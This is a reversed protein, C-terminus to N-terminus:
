FFNSESWVCLLIFMKQTPLCFITTRYRNYKKPYNKEKQCFLKQSIYTCFLNMFCIEPQLCTCIRNGIRTRTYWQSSWIETCMHKTRIYIRINKASKQELCFCLICQININRYTLHSIIISPYYQTLLFPGLGLMRIPRWLKFSFHFGFVTKFRNSQKFGLWSPLVLGIGVEKRYM